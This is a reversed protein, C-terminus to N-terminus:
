EEDYQENHNPASPRGTHRQLPGLAQFMSFPTPRHKNFVFSGIGKQPTFFETYNEVTYNHM